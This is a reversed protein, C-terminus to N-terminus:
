AAKVIAGAEIGRLYRGRLELFATILTKDTTAFGHEFAHESRVSFVFFASRGDVLWFYLPLLTGIEHVEAGRFHDGLIKQDQEELLDALQVQTISQAQQTRGTKKLYKALSQVSDPTAIWKDWARTDSFGEDFFKRRQYENYCTVSVAVDNQIKREITQRYDLFVDPDTFAGYGPFDCVIVISEKASELLRVIKPLFKPFQGEYRTTLSAHIDTLSKTLAQARETENRARMLTRGAMALGVITGLTGFLQLWNQWTM